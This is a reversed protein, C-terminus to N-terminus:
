INYANMRLDLLGKQTCIVIFAIEKLILKEDKIEVYNPNIIKHILSKAKNREELSLFSNTNKEGEENWHVKSRFFQVVRMIIMSRKWDAKASEFESTLTASKLETEVLHGELMIM